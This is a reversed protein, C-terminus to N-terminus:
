PHGFNKLGIDVYITKGQRQGLNKRDFKKKYSTL